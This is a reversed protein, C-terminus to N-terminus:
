RRRLLTWAMLGAGITICSDALNFIPWVRFDLFDVVGGFRVRDILNGVAGAVILALSWRTVEPREATGRRVSSVVLVSLFALTLVTLGFGYGRFLGFAVGTNLTLTLHFVGPFVPVTAVDSLFRLSM